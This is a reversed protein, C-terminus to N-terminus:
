SLILVAGSTILETIDVRGTTPANEPILQPLTLDFSVKFGNPSNADKRAYKRGEYDGSKVLIGEISTDKLVILNIETISM